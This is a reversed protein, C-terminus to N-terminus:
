KHKMIQVILIDLERSKAYVAEDLLSKKHNVLQELEKQKRSFIKELARRELVGGEKALGGPSYDVGDRMGEEVFCL